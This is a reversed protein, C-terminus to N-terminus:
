RVAIFPAGTVLRGVKAASVGARTLADTVSAAEGPSVAALLGGATQPDFLLEAIPDGPLSMRASVARNAGYLTARIGRAALDAAGALLPIDALDLEAALGSADCIAMLHGALGFGTVDTMAHAGALCAAAADQPRAMERLAGAVWDGRAAQQMEAALITGAGIPKTLLLIDGPQGGAV